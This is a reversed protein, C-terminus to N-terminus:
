ANLLLWLGLTSYAVMVLLMAFQSRLSEGAPFLEIARDHAVVVAGVHGFLIALVQIWAILDVSVLNFDIAGDTGGFLDWGQGAPDSLRFVFSQTEDVLLQAYHAVAYGFVIPVLSPAFASAADGVSLETVRSTWWVGIGYLAAIVGVSVVLGITLTVAGGWGTPRDLVNRGAESESFGDFTTGGLVILLTALTGGVVPMRALGSMPPRVALRGERAFVPAMAALMTFLAAFPENDAVWAAGWLVAAALSVMTHVVLLYGLNRPTSGAPHALEYFLFVSLGAAAPWHGLGAPATRPTAGLRRAVTEGWRALTNIPSIARWVDGILGNVLQAGVWVVVYFTVPLLNRDVADEGFLGAAVAVVFLVLAASRGIALVIRLVGPLGARGADDVGVWPGVMTRGAAARALQPRTWLLGLAVFSVILAIAAAWTFMWLPLPLDGRSGVGHAFIM